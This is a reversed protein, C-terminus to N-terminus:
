DEDYNRLLSRSRLVQLAPGTSRSEIIQQVTKGEGPVRTREKINLVGLDGKAIVVRAEEPGLLAIDHAVAHNNENVNALAWPHNKAINLRMEDTGQKALIHYGSDGGRKDRMALVTKKGDGTYEFKESTPNVSRIAM